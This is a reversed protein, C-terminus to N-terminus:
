YGPWTWFVRRGSTGSNFTRSLFQAAHAACQRANTSRFSLWDDVINMDGDNGDDASFRSLKQRHHWAMTYLDFGKQVHSIYPLSAM